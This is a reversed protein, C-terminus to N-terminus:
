DQGHEKGEETRPQLGETDLIWQAAAAAAADPEIGGACYKDQLEHLLKTREEATHKSAEPYYLQQMQEMM